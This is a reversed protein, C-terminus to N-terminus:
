CASPAVAAKCNKSAPWDDVPCLKPQGSSFQLDVLNHSTNVRSPSPSRHTGSGGICSARFLKAHAAIPPHTMTAPPRPETVASTYSSASPRHLRSGQSREAAASWSHKRPTPLADIHNDRGTYSSRTLTVFLHSHLSSMYRCSFVSLFLVALVSFGVSSPRPAPQPARTRYLPYISTTFMEPFCLGVRAAIFVVVNRVRKGFCFSMGRPTM